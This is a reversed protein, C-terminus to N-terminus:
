EDTPTTSATQAAWYLTLSRPYSSRKSRPEFDDALRELAAELNLVLYAWNPKSSAACSSSPVRQGVTYAIVSMVSAPAAAM